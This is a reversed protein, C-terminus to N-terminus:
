DSSPGAVYGKLYVYLARRLEPQAHGAENEAKATEVIMATALRAAAAPSLCGLTDLELKFVMAYGTTRKRLLDIATADTRLEHALRRMAPHRLNSDLFAEVGLWARTLGVETANKLKELVEARVVDMMHRLLALRYGALDTFTTSFDQESVAAARVLQAVTLQGVGGKQSCIQEGADFLAAQAPHYEDQVMLM